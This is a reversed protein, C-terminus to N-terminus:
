LSLRVFEGDNGVRYLKVERDIPPVASDAFTVLDGVSLLPPRYYGVSNWRDRVDGTYRNLRAYLWGCIADDDGPGDYDLDGEWLIPPGILPSALEEISVIRVHLKL